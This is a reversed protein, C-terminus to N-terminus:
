KKFMPRQPEPVDDAIGLKTRQLARVYAVIAWRDQITIKDGYPGMTKNGYTITNFIDGDPLSVIRKDHLTAVTALGFKKPVSNGDGQGGHCPQCSIGFRERGRAMLQATVPLPITEVFNTTSPVRGTNVPSDEFPYVTKGEVTMPQGRAVTGAVPLRSSRGDAFFNNRDQPRLKPQRDMDPFIEVPPRRSITGSHDFRRGALCVVVLCLLFFGLLFYKM